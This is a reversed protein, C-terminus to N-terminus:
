PSRGVASTRTFIPRCIQPAAAMLANRHGRPDALSREADATEPSRCTANPSMYVPRITKPARATNDATATLASVNVAAAVAAGQGAPCTGTVAPPNQAGNSGRNGVGVAVGVGDGVEGDSGALLPGSCPSGLGPAVCGTLEAELGPVRGGSSAAGSGPVDVPGAAAVDDGDAESVPADCVTGADGAADRDARARDPIEGKPGGVASAGSRPPDVAPVTGQSFVGRPPVIGKAPYKRATPPTSRNTDDAM